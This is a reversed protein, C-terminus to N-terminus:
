LLKQLKLNANGVPSYGCREYFKKATETSELSCKRLGWKFAVRELSYLVAVSVGSFRADPLVYNLLVEGNQDIMGVGVIKDAKEAVLV